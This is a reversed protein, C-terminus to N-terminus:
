AISETNPRNAEVIRKLSTLGEEFDNGVMKDMNMFLAFLRAMLGENQGDMNWTVRRANGTSEIVWAVQSTAPFPRVFELKLDVRHNPEVSQITMTGEGVDKNGNWSLSSGIEGAAGEIVQDMNPDRHQWPSWEPWRHLDCIVAYIEPASASTEVSREIHFAGHRSYAFAIVIGAAGLVAGAVILIWSM